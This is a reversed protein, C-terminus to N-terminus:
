ACVQVSFGRSVYVVPYARHAFMKETLFSTWIDQGETHGFFDQTHQKAPKTQALQKNNNASTKNEFEKEMNFIIDYKIKELM